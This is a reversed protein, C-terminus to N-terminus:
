LTRITKGSARSVAGGRRAPHSRRESRLLLSRTSPARALLRGVLVFWVPLLVLSPLTVLFALPSLLAVLSYCAFDFAVFVGIARIAGRAQWSATAIWLAAVLNIALRLVLYM